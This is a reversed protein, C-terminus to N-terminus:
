AAISAPIGTKRRAQYIYSNEMGTISNAFGNLLTYNFDGEASRVMAVDMPRNAILIFQDLGRIYESHSLEEQLPLPPIPLYSKRWICYSGKRGTNLYYLQKGSYVSLAPGADYAIIPTPRHGLQGIVQDVGRGNPIEHNVNPLEALELHLQGLVRGLLRGTADGPGQPVGLGAGFGGSVYSLVSKLM